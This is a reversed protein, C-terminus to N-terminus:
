VNMRRPEVLFLDLLSCPLVEGRGAGRRAGCLLTRIFRPLAKDPGTEGGSSGAARYEGRVCTAKFAGLVALM